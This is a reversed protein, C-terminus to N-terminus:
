WRMVELTQVCYLLSMHTSYCAQCPVHSDAGGLIKRMAAFAQRGHHHHHVYRVVYGLLSGKVVCLVCKELGWLCMNAPMCRSVQLIM